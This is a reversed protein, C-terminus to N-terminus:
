EIQDGDVIVPLRQTLTIEQASLIAKYAYVEVGAEIANRLAKGYKPDISDAPSVHKIGTHQVCYILVSRHGQTVMLELERLHKAGRVSVSDPFSGGGSEDCLTVSKVEVYCLEQETSLLIDIRSSEEGYRVETQLNQYGQLVDIVRSEIAEVVLSNARGTNVGALDGRPTTALEWTYPYKRKPNDSVSFWCPSGQAICEKMSGTNPCHITTEEGTPLRIDALFRKYRRLLVASKLEPVIKM